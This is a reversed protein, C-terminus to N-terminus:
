AFMRSFMRIAANIITLAIKVGILGIVVAGLAVGAKTGIDAWDVGIDPIVVSDEAMVVNMMAVHVFAVAACVAGVARGLTGTEKKGSFVSCVRGWLKKLM